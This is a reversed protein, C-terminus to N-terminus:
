PHIDVVALIYFVIHMEKYCFIYKRIFLITYLFIIYIYIALKNLDSNSRNIEKLQKIMFIYKIADKKWVTENPWLKTLYLVCEITELM